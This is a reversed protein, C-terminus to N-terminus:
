WIAIAVQSLWKRYRTRIHRGVISTGSTSANPVFQLFAQTCLQEVASIIFQFTSTYVLSWRLWATVLMLVVSHQTCLCMVAVKQQELLYIMDAQHGFLKQRVRYVINHILKTDILVSEQQLVHHQIQKSRFSRTVGLREVEQILAESLNDKLTVLSTLNPLAPASCSHCTPANSITWSDDPWKKAKFKVACTRGLCHYYIRTDTSHSVGWNCAKFHKRLEFESCFTRLTSEKTTGQDKTTGQAVSPSQLLTAPQQDKRACTNCHFTMGSSPLMYLGKGTPVWCGVHAVNQCTACQIYKHQSLCVQGRAHQFGGRKGLRKVCTNFVGNSYSGGCCDQHPGCLDDDSDSSTHVVQAQTSSDLKPKPPSSSRLYVSADFDSAPSSSAPSPSPSPCSM